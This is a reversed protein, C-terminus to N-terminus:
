PIYFAGEVALAATWPGQIQLDEVVEGCGGLTAITLLLFSKETSSSFM